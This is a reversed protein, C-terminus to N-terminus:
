KLLYWHISHNVLSGFKSIGDMAKWQIDKRRLSERSAAYQKMKLSVNHIEFIQLGKRFIETISL